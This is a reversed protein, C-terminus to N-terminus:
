HMAEFFSFAQNGKFEGSWMKLSQESNNFQLLLKRCFKWGHVKVVDRAAANTKEM